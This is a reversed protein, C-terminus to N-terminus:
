IRKKLEIVKKCLLYEELSELKDLARELMEPINERSVEVTYNKISNKCEFIVAPFKDIKPNNLIYEATNLFHTWFLVPQNKIFTTTPNTDQSDYVFKPTKMM